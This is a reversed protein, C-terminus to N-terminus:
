PELWRCGFPPMTAGAPMGGTLRDARNALEPVPQITDTTNIVFHSGDTRPVAMVGTPLALLPKVGAEVLWDAFWRCLADPEPLGALRVVAGRGLRHLTAAIRGDLEPTQHVLTALVEIAVGPVATLLEFYGSAALESSTGDSWRVSPQPGLDRRSGLQRMSTAISGTLAALSGGLGDSVFVGEASQLATMPLVILLGGTTVFAELAARITEGDLVTAAPVIVARYRALEAGSGARTANISDVGVGIRRLAEVTLPMVTDATDVHPYTEIAARQNFDNIIAVKADVPARLLMPGLDRLEAGLEAVWTFEPEPQGIFDMLSGWHPWHGGHWRNGTWFIIGDAGSAMWNFAWMRFEERSPLSDWMGAGGAQTFRTETVLYRGAGQAARAADTLWAARRLFGSRDPPGPYPNLGTVDFIGELGADDFETLWLLMWDSTIWQTAGASRLATKQEKLFDVILDRRFRLNALALAPLQHPGETPTFRPQPVAAFSDVCLGWHRLGMRENLNAVTGYTSKLWQTWAVEVAPNYDPHVVSPADIENDLQWGIIAPHSAIAAVFRRVFSRCAERYAPHALCGTKRYFPHSPQGPYPMTAIDPHLAHLWLPPIYTNTGVIASLGRAHVDDLAQQVWEMEYRGAAVEINGWASEALRVVNCDAAALTDLLSLWRDRQMIEPYVSSGFLYTSTDFAM